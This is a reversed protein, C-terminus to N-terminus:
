SQQFLNLSQNSLHPHLVASHLIQSFNAVAMVFKHQDSLSISCPNPKSGTAGEPAPSRQKPQVVPIAKVRRGQWPHSISWKGTLSGVNRDKGFGRTFCIVNSAKCICAPTGQMIAHQAPTCEIRLSIRIFKPRSRRRKKDRVKAVIRSSSGIM